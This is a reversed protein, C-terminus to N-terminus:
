IKNMEKLIPRLDNVWELRHSIYINKKSDSMKLPSIPKLDRKVKWSQDIIKRDNWAALDAKTMM